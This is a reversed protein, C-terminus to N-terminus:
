GIFVQVHEGDEDDNANIILPEDIKKVLSIAEIV